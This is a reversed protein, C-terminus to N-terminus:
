WVAAALSLHFPSGAMVSESEEDHSQSVAFQPTCVDHMMAYAPQM